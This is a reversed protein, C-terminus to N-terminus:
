SWTEGRLVSYIATKGCNFKTMFDNVRFTGKQKAARIEKAAELSLRCYNRSRSQELRTEWRCNKPSYALESDIRGLTHSPTPRTGLDKLFTPFSNWRECVKIGRGGYHRFDDARSNNCRNRMMLWTRYEAPFKAKLGHNDRKKKRVFGGSPFSFTGKGNILSARAM